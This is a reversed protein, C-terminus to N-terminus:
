AFPILTTSWPLTLHPPLLASGDFGMCEFVFQDTSKQIAGPTCPPETMLLTSDKCTVNLCNKAMGREWLAQLDLHAILSPSEGGGLAPGV